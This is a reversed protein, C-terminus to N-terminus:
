VNQIHLTPIVIIKLNVSKHKNDSVHFDLVCKYLHDISIWQWLIENYLHNMHLQFVNMFHMFINRLRNFVMSSIQEDIVLALNLTAANYQSTRHITLFMKM